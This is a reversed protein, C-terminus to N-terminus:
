SGQLLGPLSPPSASFKRRKWEESLFNLEQLEAKGRGGVGWEQPDIERWGTGWGRRYGTWQLGLM